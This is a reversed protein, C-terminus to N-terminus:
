FGPLPAGAPDALLHFHLHPVEQETGCNTIIRCGKLNLTAITKSISQLIHGLEEPAAEAAHAMSQLHNKVIAIVHIPAKPAIDYFALVHDDEYVKRCPIEGRLIKGFVTPNEPLTYRM